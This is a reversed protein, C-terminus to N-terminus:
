ERGPRSQPARHTGNLIMVSVLMMERVVKLTRIMFEQRGFLSDPQEHDSLDQHETTQKNAVEDEVMDVWLHKSFARAFKIPAHTERIGQDQNKRGERHSQPDVQDLFSFRLRGDNTQRDRDKAPRDEHADLIEFVHVFEVKTKERTTIKIDHRSVGFMRVESHIEPKIEAHGAQVPNVHKQAHPEDRPDHNARNAPVEIRVIIGRDFTDSNKPM